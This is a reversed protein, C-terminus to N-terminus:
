SMRQFEFYACNQAHSFDEVGADTRSRTNLQCIVVDGGDLWLSFSRCLPEAWCAVGCKALGHVQLSRVEHNHLCLGPAHKFHTSWRNLECASIPNFECAAFKRQDCLSDGWRGSFKKAMRICTESGGSPENNAWTAYSHAESDGHCMVQGSNELHRCGIWVELDAEITVGLAGMWNRMERWIFNQEAQSDPVVMGSGSRNCAKSAQQWTM